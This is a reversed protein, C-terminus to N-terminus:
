GGLWWWGGGVELSDKDYIIPSDVAIRKSFLFNPLLTELVMHSPPWAAINDPVFLLSSFSGPHLLFCLCDIQVPHSRVTLSRM